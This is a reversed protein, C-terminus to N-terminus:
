QEVLIDVNQGAVSGAVFVLNANTIFLKVSDGANLTVRATVVATNAGSNALFVQAGNGVTARIVLAFGDPVPINPLQTFGPTAAIPQLSQATFAARNTIAGGSTGKTYALWFDRETVRYVGGSTPPGIGGATPSRLRLEWVNYFTRAEGVLITVEASWDKGDPSSIVFLTASGDNIVTIKPSIRMLTPYIEEVQYGPTGALANSIVDPSPQTTTAVSIVTQPTDYYDLEPKAVDPKLNKVIVGLQELIQVLTKEDVM